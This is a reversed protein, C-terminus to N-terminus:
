RRGESSAQFKHPETRRVRGLTHSSPAWGYFVASSDPGAPWCDRTHEPGYSQPGCRTPPAVPSAPTSCEALVGSRRRANQRTRPGCRVSWTRRRSSLLATGERIAAIGRVAGRERSASNGPGRGRSSGPTPIALAVRTPTPEALAKSPRPNPASLPAGLSWDCVCRWCTATSAAFDLMARGTRGRRARIARRGAGVPAMSAPGPPSRSESGPFLFRCPGRTWRVLVPPGPEPHPM